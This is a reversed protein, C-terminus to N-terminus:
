RESEVRMRITHCRRCATERASESIWDCSACTNDPGLGPAYTYQYSGGHTRERYRYGMRADWVEPLPQGSRLRQDLDVFGDVVLEVMRARQVEASDHQRGSVPERFVRAYGRLRRVIADTEGRDRLNVASLAGPVAGRASM